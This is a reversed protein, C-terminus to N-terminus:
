EKVEVEESWADKVRVREPDRDAYSFLVDEQCVERAENVWDEWRPGEGTEPHEPLRLTARFTIEVEAYHEKREPM